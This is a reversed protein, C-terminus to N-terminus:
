GATRSLRALPSRGSARWAWDLTAVVADIWAPRAALWDPVPRRMALREAALYEAEILEEYAQNLRGTVPARAPRWPGRPPRVAARALWRCTMVVGAGYWDGGPRRAQEQQHAEAAAWVAAFEERSVRLNGAPVRAVDAATVEMRGSHCAAAQSADLAVRGAM